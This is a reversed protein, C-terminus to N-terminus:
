PELLVAIKTSACETHAAISAKETPDLALDWGAKIGLWDALYTCTFSTRPPLWDAPDKDGKSRNTTASVALLAYRVDLDNAFRMRRDASWANAGSDWAEALPVVHDIDLASSDGFTLGDYVSFWSGGNLTCTGSITPATLADRLLVEKRTNCRDGDADIWLRFLTRVYGTRDEPAVRLLGLLSIM